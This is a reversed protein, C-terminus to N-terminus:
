LGVAECQFSRLSLNTTDSVEAAGGVSWETWKIKGEAAVYSVVFTIGGPVDFNLAGSTFFLAEITSLGIDGTAIPDGDAAYSSPGTYLFMRRQHTGAVDEFRSFERDITPM